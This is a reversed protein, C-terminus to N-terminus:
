SKTIKYDFSSTLILSALIFPNISGNDFILNSISAVSKIEKKSIALETILRLFGLIASKDSLQTLSM